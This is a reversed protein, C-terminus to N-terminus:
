KDAKPFSVAYSQGLWTVGPEEQREEMVGAAAARPRAGLPQTHLLLIRAKPVRGGKGLEWPSFFFFIILCICSAANLLHWTEGGAWAKPAIPADGAGIVPLHSGPLESCGKHRPSPKNGTSACAFATGPLHAMLSACSAASHQGPSNQVKAGLEVPLPALQRSSSFPRRADHQPAALLRWGAGSGVLSVPHPGM